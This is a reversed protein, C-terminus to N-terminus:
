KRKKVEKKVRDYAMGGALGVVGGIPGGFLFGVAGAVASTDTIELLVNNKDGNSKSVKETTTVEIKQADNEM